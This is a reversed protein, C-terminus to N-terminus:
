CGSTCVDWNQNTSGLDLFIRGLPSFQYTSSNSHTLIGVLTVNDGSRVKFVPSGSDGGLVRVDVQVQCLYTGIWDNNTGDDAEFCSHTIDGKTKGTSRGVKIM